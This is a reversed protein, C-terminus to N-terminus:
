NISQYLTERVNEKEQEDNHILVGHENRNVMLVLPKFIWGCNM